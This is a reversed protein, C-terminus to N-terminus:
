ASMTAAASIAFSAKMTLTTMSSSFFVTAANAPSKRWAWSAPVANRRCYQSTSAMGPSM